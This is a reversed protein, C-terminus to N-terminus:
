QSQQTTSAPAMFVVCCAVHPEKPTRPMTQVHAAHSTTLLWSVSPVTASPPRWQTALCCSSALWFSISPIQGPCNQLCHHSVRKRLSAALAERLRKIMEEV